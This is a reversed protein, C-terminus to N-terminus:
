CSFEWTGDALVPDLPPQALDVFTAEGRGTGGDYSTDPTDVGFQSYSSGTQWDFDQEEDTVYASASDPIGPTATVYIETTPEGLATGTFLVVGETPRNCTGEIDWTMEGITVTGSGDSQGGTEVGDGDSVEEGSGDGESSTVPGASSDDSGCGALAGILLIAGASVGIGRM